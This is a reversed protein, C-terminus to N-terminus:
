MENSLSALHWVNLDGPYFSSRRLLFAVDGRLNRLGQFRFALGLPFINVDRKQVHGFRIVGFTSDRDGILFAHWLFKAVRLSVKSFWACKIQRTWWSQLRM